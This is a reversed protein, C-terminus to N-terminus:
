CNKSMRQKHPAWISGLRSLLHCIGDGRHGGKWGGKGRSGRGSVVEREGGVGPRWGPGFEDTSSKPGGEFSSSATGLTFGGFSSDSVEMHKPDQQVAAEFLLM